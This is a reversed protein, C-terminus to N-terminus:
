SIKSMVWDSCECLQIIVEHDLQGIWKGPIGYLGYYAGALGGTLAAITDADGGDNVAGIIAEEFSGTKLFWFESNHFTNCVHGTPDYRLAESDREGLIAKQLDEYYSRIYVDHMADSHTLYSQECALRLDGVLCPILCRMLGGNGLDRTQLDRQRLRNKYVWENPNIWKTGYIARKCAGGIDPPNTDAWARFEQCIATLTMNPHGDAKRMARYVCLMMQTDDTVQGPELNLWGGGLIETVRGYQDAIQEKSMFETTAGMADGIAFGFLSGQIRDRLEM